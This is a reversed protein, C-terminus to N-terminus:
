CSVREIGEKRARSRVPGSLKRCMKSKGEPVYGLGRCLVEGMSINSSLEKLM